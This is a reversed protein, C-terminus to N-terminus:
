TLADAPVISDIELLAAEEMDFFVLDAMLCRDLYVEGFCASDCAM